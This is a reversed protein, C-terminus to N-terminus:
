VNYPFVTCALASVQSGIYARSGSAGKIYNANIYDSGPVGPFASLEVRSYDDTSFLPVNTYM